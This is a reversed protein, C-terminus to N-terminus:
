VRWHTPRNIILCMSISVALRALRKPSRYHEHFLQRGYLHMYPTFGYVFIPHEKRRLLPQAFTSLLLAMRSHRFKLTVAWPTCEWIRDMRYIRLVSRARHLFARPWSPCSTSPSEVSRRYSGIQSDPVRWYTQPLRALIRRLIPVLTTPRGSCPVCLWSVRHPFQGLYEVVSWQRAHWIHYFIHRRLPHSPGDGILPRHWHEM